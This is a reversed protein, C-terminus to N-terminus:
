NNVGVDYQFVQRALKGDGSGIGEVVVWYKGASGANFYDFTAKGDKGTLLNPQWYITKRNDALTVKKDPAYKPSYFTKAKYYGKFSYLTLGPQLPTIYNAEDGYKTTIVILGGSAQSGYIASYMPSELMEISQIDTNSVLSLSNQDTIVGNLLVAMARTHGALAIPTHSSYFVPGTPTYVIRVGGHVLYVLCDAINVCNNLQDGMIVQDAQGPGNLNASHKLLVAYDPHIPPNKHDTVKVEKLQIVHSLSDQRWTAYAQQVQATNLEFHSSIYGNTENGTRIIGPYDPKDIKLVVNSGGNAKKANIVVKATDPFDLSGFAFKGNADTLADMVLMHKTSTLFVQGNAVPKGAPTTVSGFINFGKEPRYTAPPNSGSVINKWEFRHYGQTLMLLDLDARTQDTPNAFYYDPDQIYGALESKLLLDTFITNEANENIPVRNEDVVSVSFTGAAPHGDADSADLSFKVQEGPTYTQKDTALALRLQDDNQIFVIRENLPEGTQSFLTFQVIGSPFRNKAISATFAKDSLKGSAAFYCKGASQALLYFEMDPMDKEAVKVYLSDALNNNVSLTFGANKAAPLLITFTSGDAATVKAFYQKGQRPELPFVGTGLHQSAFAAVEAGSNDIITGQVGEAMGNQNVAKFAVKSRLGNVLDGGEPFFQLDVKDTTQMTPSSQTSTARVAIPAAQTSFAAVAIAQDYFYEPGANRMWNTYARIRYSGPTMNYPLAFEGAAVGTDLGLTLRRTVTDKPGILEAYLIRSLASLQHQSGAVVYAKFWITDGPFYLQKDLHLHVKEIPHALTYNELAKINRKVLSDNQAFACQLSLLLILLQLFFKNM